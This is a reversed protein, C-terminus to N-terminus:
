QRRMAALKKALELNSKINSIKTATNQAVADYDAIAKLEVDCMMLSMMGADCPDFDNASTDLDVLQMCINKKIEKVIDVMVKSSSFYYERNKM